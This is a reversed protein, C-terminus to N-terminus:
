MQWYSTHARQAPLGSGGREHGGLERPAGRLVSMVLSLQEREGIRRTLTRELGEGSGGEGSGGEGSGGETTLM